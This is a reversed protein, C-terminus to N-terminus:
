PEDPDPEQDDADSDPAARELSEPRGLNLRAAYDLLALAEDSEDFGKEKRRDNIRRYMRSDLAVPDAGLMLVPESATYLSRFAPGGIFQYRELSVLSFLWTEALEPVAAMEAVAAAGSAKSHFFRATNSANWLTANVLAGNLGLVPHDTYVPLNIWFDVDLLLPKPLYSRRDKQNGQYTFEGQPASRSAQRRPPLPSDYFWLEDFYRGSELVYVPHGEFTSGGENLSPLFGSKRLRTESQDIIFIDEASFGREVLLDIVARVLPVPTALGAGSGTYVKLGVRGKKGPRVKEGREEEFAFFLREVGARYGEPSFDEVREELIPSGPDIAEALSGALSIALCACGIAARGLGAAARTVQKPRKVSSFSRFVTQRHAITFNM